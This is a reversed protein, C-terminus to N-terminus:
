QPLCVSDTIEEKISKESENNGKLSQFPDQTSLNVDLFESDQLLSLSNLSNEKKISILNSHNIEELNEVQILSDSLNTCSETQKSKQEKLHVKIHKKLNNSQTFSLNCKNCKYPREGTHIRKHKILHSTQSFAKPCIDCCFPREGTHTRMHIRLDASRIFTKYCETCLHPREATPKVEYGTLIGPNPNSDPKFPHKISQHSKSNDIEVHTQQQHNPCYELQLEETSEDKSTEPNPFCPLMRGLFSSMSSSVGDLPIDSQNQDSRASPSLSNKRLTIDDSEEKMNIQQINLGDLKIDNKITPYSCASSTIESNNGTTSISSFSVNEFELSTLDPIISSPLQHKLQNEILETNKFSDNEKVFLTQSQQTPLSSNEPSTYQINHSLEQDNTYNIKQALGENIQGTKNNNDTNNNNKNNCLTTSKFHTQVHKKLNSSQTFALNCLACTYPREGTHVRRHKTLHSTQAFTKPCLDCSFPKEGTHTRIHLRLDGPRLFAKGCRSCIYPRGLSMKRHRAGSQSVDKLFNRGKNVLPSRGKITSVLKPEMRQNWNQTLHDSHHTASSSNSNIFSTSSVRQYKERSLQKQCQHNSFEDEKSFEMRCLGCRFNKVIKSKNGLQKQQQQQQQGLVMWHLQQHDTFDSFQAFYAPCLKCQLLENHTLAVHSLFDTLRVFQIPCLKCSYFQDSSFSPRNRHIQFDFDSTTSVKSEGEPECLDIVNNASKVSLSTPYNNNTSIASHPKLSASNSNIKHIRVKTNQHTKNVKMSTNVTSVSFQGPMSIPSLRKTRLHKKMHVSLAINSFFHRLCYKCRHLVKSNINTVISNNNSTTDNQSISGHIVNRSTNSAKFHTRVHKKLNSSQTFALSCMSCKYPREGTHIRRHKTLHSTQAFAKPCLDCKFPREGTHTRMHLRLDATRYFAKSCHQCIVSRHKSATSTCQSRKTDGELRQISNSFSTSTDNLLTVETKAAITSAMIYNKQQINFSPQNMELSHNNNITVNGLTAENFRTELAPFETSISAEHSSQPTFSVPELKLQDDSPILYSHSSQLSTPM